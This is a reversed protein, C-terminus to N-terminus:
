IPGAAFGVPVGAGNEYAEMASVGRHLPNYPLMSGFHLVFQGGCPKQSSDNQWAYMLWSNNAGWFGM